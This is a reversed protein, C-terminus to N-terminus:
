LKQYVRVYEVEMSRPFISDDVPGGMDGGIALNLLLYQPSDFPWQDRSAGKKEYTHFPKNDVSIVIRDATWTMQYDHFATCADPVRVQGGNGFTGATSRTHLTGEIIEPNKGVQEMIDIEGGDPWQNSTSLMWIAPWTGVGCPLKARIEFFGYTWSAKRNTILRASAYDQGGYDSANTLREKTATIILRGDQLRANEPRAVAYYQLENNYWGTANAETDYSWKMTDPM